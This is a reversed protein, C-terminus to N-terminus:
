PSLHAQAKSCKSRAIFQALLPGFLFSGVFPKFPSPGKFM